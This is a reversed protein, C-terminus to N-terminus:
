KRKGKLKLNVISGDRLDTNSFINDDSTNGFLGVGNLLEDLQEKNAHPFSFITVTKDNNKSFIGKIKKFSLM